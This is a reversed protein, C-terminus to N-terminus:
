FVADVIGTRWRDGSLLEVYIIETDCVLAHLRQAQAKIAHAHRVHIAILEPSIWHVYLNRDAM